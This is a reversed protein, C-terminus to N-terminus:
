YSDQAMWSRIIERAEELNDAIMQQALQLSRDPIKMRIPSDVPITGVGEALLQRELDAVTGPLRDDQEEEPILLKTVLPRMVFFVLLFALLAIAGYKAMELQFERSLWPSKVDLPPPLPEFATNTVEISDGRKADFGVTQMIIRKLQEMEETSRPTYVAPKEPDINGDKDKVAEYTGDIMVAVSLRRIDGVAEQVTTVKKPVLFNVQEREVDRTQQSGTGGAVATQNPDNPIVGPVGGTGFMGRSSETVTNTSLPVQGDPDYSEEQRQKKDLDLEATIRIISKDPGLVRDLLSQVREEIKKEKMSQLALADDTPMRGDLDETKGGAILNGKQDLLTVQDQSLGEVASAVMHTIGDIQTKNLAHTLEMVVSATATREEAAFMSKKPLVLHVRAKEVAAISEVSRALEGQLARQYNMRQVFDTMGMLSQNDFIEFGVGDTSKPLGAKAMELRVDYVKDEPIRITTGGSGLEYPVGLKGLQEVIRASELDPLGSYLVKMSPRTAFWIIAALIFVSAMAAIIVGNRGTLPLSGFLGGLSPEEASAGGEADNPTEAM